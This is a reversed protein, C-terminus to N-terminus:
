NGGYQINTGALPAGSTGPAATLTTTLLNGAVTSVVNENGAGGGAATLYVKYNIANPVASWTATITSIGSGTTTVTQENSAQTEGYPTIASVKAFYVGNAISGGSAATSLASQVPAPNVASTSANAGSSTLPQKPDITATSDFGADFTGPATNCSAYGSNVTGGSAGVGNLGNTGNQGNGQSIAQMLTPNGQPAAANNGGFQSGPPVQMNLSVEGRSVAAMVSEFSALYLPTAVGGGTGVMQGANPNPGLPPVGVPGANNNGWTM